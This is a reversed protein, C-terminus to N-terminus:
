GEVLDRMEDEAGAGQGFNGGVELWVWAFDRPSWISAVVEVSGVTAWKLERRVIARVNAGSAMM